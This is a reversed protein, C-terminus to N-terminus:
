KKLIERLAGELEPHKFEYGADRLKKPAVRQGTTLVEAVPGFRLRLAFGPVPFLSPRGLVKGFTRAFERATVANPAVANVPGELDSEIPFTINGAVDDIHVWSMYQTGPMVPGGVFMKFPTLMQAVA